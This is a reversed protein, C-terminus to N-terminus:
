LRAGGNSREPQWRLLWNELRAILLSALFVAASLMIVAAFMSATDFRSSATQIRVGMGRFAGLFEGFITASFAFAVAPRFSSLLWALISPFLVYRNVQRTSAGLVRAKKILEQDMSRIGGYVNFFVIFVVLLFSFVIKSTPGLGFWLIMVPAFVIKPVANAVELFPRFVDDLVRIRGLAYALPVGVLVGLAFGAFASLTTIGLDVYAAPEVLLEGLKGAILVPRSVFFENLAGFRVLLEWAVFVGLLVAIQALAVLATRGIRRRGSSGRGEKEAAGVPGRDVCQMDVMSQANTNM